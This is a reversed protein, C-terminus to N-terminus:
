ATDDDDGAAEVRLLYSASLDDQIGPSLLRWQNILRELFHLV